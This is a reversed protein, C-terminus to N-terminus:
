PREIRPWRFQRGPASHGVNSESHVARDPQSEAAAAPHIRSITGAGHGLVLLSGDPATKLDVSYQPITLPFTAFSNDSRIHRLWTNCYDVVFYHDLYSAPFQNGTYFTGGTIACQEGAAVVGREHAYIPNTAFSNSCMGECTPWGYNRGAQGANVEEWAGAGVDNIRMAGTSPHFSFRYPNRLGIAWIARFAGSPTM